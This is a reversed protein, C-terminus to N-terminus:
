RAMMDILRAALEDLRYVGDAAGAAITAAPMEWREAEDPDQVLVTGGAQRVALAGRSGDDNAGTLVIATVGPGYSAAASEFLVDVSPRSFLVPAELSLVLIGEDVLLHYDPPGLFVRGGELPTKDEVDIVELSCRIALYQRMVGDLSSKGRHQVIAVPVSFSKPLPALLRGIADLGGWSAGVVVLRAPGTL